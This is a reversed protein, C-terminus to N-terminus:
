SSAMSPSTFNATLSDTVALWDPPEVTAPTSEVWDAGDRVFGADAYFDRCPQNHGTDFYRGRIPRDGSAIGERALRRVANLLAHEIRYGFVRCSLVFVPLKIEHGAADIWCAGVLGMAGFRDSAEAVAICHGPTNRFAQAERVSTRSGVLNFQNTRNILEVVRSVDNPRAARISCSLGLGAFAEEPEEETALFEDRRSRERYLQTRDVEPRDTLADAWRSLLRWVRPDTADLVTVDPLAEKVLARQDARDDIFVFDKHKLNLEREIRRINLAKSDWNIQRSVFDDPRLTAGDWRVKAVDNKSNVALLVGREKLERLVRQRDHWHEVVGEGIEGRWITNDLDCAILKKSVLGAHAAMIDRYHSAIVPGFAAPHQFESNYFRSALTAESHPRALEVEDVLIFRAGRENRRSELLSVLRDNAAQRARRRVSRTIMERLRGPPTPDHRRLNVTNHVYIPAEFLDVLADLNRAVETMATDVSQAIARRSAMVHRVRDLETFEPSFAYSFPSYFVFSCSRTSAERLQRRLEAPFKATAFAPRLAIGDEACQPALFGLLDVFLCDGVFLVDFTRPLDAQVVAQVERLTADLRALDEPPAAGSLPRLFAERDAETVRRRNEQDADRSLAPDYLQKLKEGLYLYRYNEDGTEFLLALYDVFAFLERRLADDPNLRYAEILGAFKPWTGLAALLGRAIDRRHARLGRALRPAPSNANKRGDM